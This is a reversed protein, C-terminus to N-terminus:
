IYISQYSWAIRFCHFHHEESLSSLTDIYIKLRLPNRRSLKKQIYIKNHTLYRLWSNFIKVYFKLFVLLISNFLVKNM